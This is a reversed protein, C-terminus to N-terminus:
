QRHEKVLRSLSEAGTQDLVTSLHADGRFDALFDDGYIQRLTDVRTDGRKQHIQGNADRHRGDPAPQKAM